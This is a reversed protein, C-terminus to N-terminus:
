QLTGERLGGQNQMAYEGLIEYQEDKFSPKGFNLSFTVLNKLM